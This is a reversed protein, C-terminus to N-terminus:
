DRYVIADNLAKTVQSAYEIDDSRLGETEGGSTSLMIMYLTKKLKDMKYAAFSLGGFFIVCGLGMFLNENNRDKIGIFTVYAGALIILASIIHSFVSTKKPEKHSLKISTIGSMAYTNAGNIFRANTVKVDDYEFFVKEM